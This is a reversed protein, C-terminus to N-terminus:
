KRCVVCYRKVNKILRRAAPVWFKTQLKALTNEVGGHDIRHLHEIYLKVVKSNSPMLIFSDQNWNEKLWHSMREGVVIIGDKSMSPGLRKYSHEWDTQLTRQEELILHKEAEEIFFPTPHSSAAKFSKAKIAAIVRAIVRLLKKYCSFRDVNILKSDSECKENSVCTLTLSNRDPLEENCLKSVPWLSIEHLLFEPGKQWLSNSHLYNPHCPRTTLDAPNESTKVWWWEAPDTKAQIEAIRNAVFTGFGYSEKQIQARVIASDVLHMISHFKWDSEKEIMVRLRCSLIAGCLELRPITMQKVPAIRNKAMVLHSEYQGTTLEWRVYASAGYALSSSDSFVVLMPDGVANDPKICRKFTLDELEYMEHFFSCWKDRLRDPLADDWTYKASTNKENSSLERMLLKPFLTFPTILGLPDYVAAIQSLVMRKTLNRPVSSDVNTITLNPGQRVNRIKRSFNLKVKYKFHDEKPDWNLGLVSEEYSDLLSVDTTESEGGSIIWHKIKFGGENLVLDIDSTLQRAECMNDCSHVIDDVYSNKCVVNKVEPFKSEHMEVTKKLAMMAIVGSPKDGFTVSTMIYHDPPKSVNMNRWLFRHTHQDLPGLKVSHYMKSIDGTLAIQGQRFRILIGLLNTLVNPGKAWYDNLSHGMYFASSNFVIRLPTSSSNPKLVDHHTVYHVPGDYENIEQVSLKKAVGRNVMDKIQDDYLASYQPGLKSLRKETSKMRAVAASVNNPLDKPDKVWPYEATWIKKDKNYALGANIMDLEREEKISYNKDGIACSGCKCAGCRPVCYTGLAEIEFFRELNLTVKSTEEVSLATPHLFSTAHNVRVTFAYDRHSEFRVLPHSGRICYGFMNKMLQLNGVTSEVVPMLNCWDTGILLDIDGEPRDLDAVTINRFLAVVKTLDVKCIASTIHEIGYATIHRVKGYLDVLPITYERSHLKETMGGVKTVSLTVEKGTLGLRSATDFIVLTIDSGPDWLANLPINCDRSYVKSMMLLAKDRVRNEYKGSLSMHFMLGEIYADHLLPHHFKNCKFGETTNINCPRKSQCRKSIHNGNLCSFCVHNYKIAEMKESSNMEKFEKCNHITHTNSDHLWCRSGRYWPVESDKREKGLSQISQTLQNLCQRMESQEQKLKHITSTMDSNGEMVESDANHCVRSSACARVSSDMYEMVKRERLLFELLKEFLNGSNRYQESWLVWERKQTSPMIKEIFSVMSTTNMEKELSMRKMDLWCRELKEVVRIFSKTDGEGIPKITKLDCLITDVLKCSDGFKDDLRKFMKDYDNEVGQVVSLAPGSLCSRLAYPDKHFSGKMLREYDEKFNPYDRIEGSFVPPPISKVKLAKDKEENDVNVQQQQKICLVEIKKSELENIYEEAEIMTSEGKGKFVLLEIYEEHLREVRIFADCVEKCLDDLVAQTGEQKATVIFLNYKRTFTRKAVTRANKVREIDEESM